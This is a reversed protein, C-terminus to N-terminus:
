RKEQVAAVGIAGPGAHTALAPGTEAVLIDGTFIKRTHIDEALQRAEAEAALHVVAVHSLPKLAETMELLRALSKGRTRPREVPTIANDKVEVIPKIQLTNVLFFQANSVRGSRKLNETTDLAVLITTRPRLDELHHLIDATTKGQTSLYAAELVQFGLAMSTTGTDYTSIRTGQPDVERAAAQASELFRSLKSSVHISIIRGERQYISKFAESGPAGTTPLTGTEEILELFRKVTLNVRDLFSQGGLSVVAPVVDIGHKQIVEAPLDATSDTVIHHSAHEVSTM